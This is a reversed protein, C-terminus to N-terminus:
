YLAWPSQAHAGTTHGAQAFLVHQLASQPDSHKISSQSGSVSLQSPKQLLVLSHTFPVWSQPTGRQNVLRGRGEGRLIVLRKSTVAM